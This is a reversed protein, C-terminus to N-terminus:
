CYNGTFNKDGGLIEMICRADNGGPKSAVTNERPLPYYTMSTITNLSALEPNPCEPVGEGGRREKGGGRGGELQTLEPM